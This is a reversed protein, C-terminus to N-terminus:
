TGAGDSSPAHALAAQGMARFKGIRDSVLKKPSKRATKLLPEFHKILEKRIMEAAAQASRHAGGKPEPVVADVIGLKMLDTPTMKLRESAREALTSDSWLIAACSEPSIVSYTSYEQMLVVNGIGIALAGGSGGEGIVLVLTPVSLGFMAEISEAIAASQGREEAELGPYAGPTDILTIIPMKARDAMQMLRIAKRYGEPKAMGFNREMKQKTTRGKQHGMILVPTREIKEAKLEAETAGPKAPPWTAVGALIAADDGFTRDGHLEMFDPFLLDVYDRTYPRGPHRSLQVKQWPSLKAYTEDILASVKKELIAIEAAFDVGEQKALERLDVLKKELNVIPKEFDFFAEM